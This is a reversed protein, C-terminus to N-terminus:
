DLGKLDSNEKMVKMTSQNVMFTMFIKMAPKKPEADFANM